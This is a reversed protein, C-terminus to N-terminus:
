EAETVPNGDFSCSDDFDLGHDRLFADRYQGPSTGMVVKFRRSFHSRDRFNLDVCLQSISVDSRILQGAAYNMKIRDIYDKPLEGTKELFLKRLRRSSCSCYDAMMDINWWKQPNANLEKLLREFSYNDSKRGSKADNLKFLLDQMALVARQHSAPTNRAILAAIEPLCRSRYFSFCGEQLLDANAMKSFISGDFFIYDEQYDSGPIGGFIAPTGPAIIVVNGASLNIVKNMTPLCLKGKGSYIHSFCWFDWQRVPATAFTDKPVDEDCCCLFASGFLKLKNSFKRFQSIVIIQRKAINKEWFATYQPTM